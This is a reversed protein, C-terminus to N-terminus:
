GTCIFASHFFHQEGDTMHDAMNTGEHTYTINPAQLTKSLRRQRLSTLTFAKSNVYSVVSHSTLVTLPHGMVVHAIKQLIKAAGATHQMCLPHRKEMNDLMISVYM